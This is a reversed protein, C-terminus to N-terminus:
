KVSAAMEVERDKSYYNWHIINKHAISIESM